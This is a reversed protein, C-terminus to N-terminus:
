VGGDRRGSPPKDRLLAEAADSDMSLTAGADAQRYFPAYINAFPEFATATVAYAAPAGTLMSSNDIDCVLGDGAKPQWATPYLYFVDVPMKGGSPAYMWHGANSYDTAAAAFAAFPCLWMAATLVWKLTQLRM